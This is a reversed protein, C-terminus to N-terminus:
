PDELGGRTAKRRDGVRDIELESQGSTVGSREHGPPLLGVPM